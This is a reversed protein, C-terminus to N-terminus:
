NDSLALFFYDFFGEVNEVNKTYFIIVLHSKTENKKM